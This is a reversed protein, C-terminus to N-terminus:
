GSCGRTDRFQEVGAGPNFLKVIAHALNNTGTRLHFVYVDHVGMKYGRFAANGMMRFFLELDEAGSFMESFGGVENLV